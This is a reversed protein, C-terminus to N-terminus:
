LNKLGTSQVFGLIANIIIIALITLADAYEGLMGSILAAM